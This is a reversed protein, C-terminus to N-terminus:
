CAQAEFACHIRLIEDECIDLEFPLVFGVEVDEDAV